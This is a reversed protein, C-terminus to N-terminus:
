KGGINKRRIRQQWAHEDIARIRQEYEKWTLYQNNPRPPTLRSVLGRITEIIM